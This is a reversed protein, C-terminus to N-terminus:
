APSQGGVGQLHGQPLASGVLSENMVAVPAALIGRLVLPFNQRVVAHESTHTATAVAEVVRRYLAKEARQLGFADTSALISGSRFSFLGKEKRYM